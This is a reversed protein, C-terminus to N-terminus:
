LLFLRCSRNSYDLAYVERGTRLPVNPLPISHFFQRMVIDNNNGTRPLIVYAGICTEVDHDTHQRSYKFIVDQQCDQQDGILVHTKGQLCGLNVLMDYLRRAQQENGYILVTGNSSVINMVNKINNVEQVIDM